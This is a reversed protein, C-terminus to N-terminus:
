KGDGIEGELDKLFDQFEEGEFYDMKKKLSDIRRQEEKLASNEGKLPKQPKNKKEMADRCKSCYGREVSPGSLNAGDCALMKTCLPTRSLKTNDGM